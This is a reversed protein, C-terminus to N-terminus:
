KERCGEETLENKQKFRKKKKVDINSWCPVALSYLM